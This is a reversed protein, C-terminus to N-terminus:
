NKVNVCFKFRDRDYLFFQFSGGIRSETNIGIAGLLADIVQNLWKMGLIQNMIFDGIM